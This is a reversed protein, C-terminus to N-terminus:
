VNNQQLVILYSKRKDRRTLIHYKNDFITLINALKKWWHGILLNKKLIPTPYRTLNPDPLLLPPRHESKKAIRHKKVIRHKSIRLAVDVINQVITKGLLQRAGERESEDSEPQNYHRIMLNDTESTTDSREIPMSTMITLKNNECFKTLSQHITGDGGRIYTMGRALGCGAAYSKTICLKKNHM